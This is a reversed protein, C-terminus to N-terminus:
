LNGHQKGTYKELIILHLQIQTQISNVNLTSHESNKKLFKSIISAINSMGSYSVKMNNKNFYKHLPTNKGFHTNILKLFNSHQKISENYPPNFWIIKGKRSRYNIIIGNM